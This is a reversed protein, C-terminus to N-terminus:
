QLVINKNGKIIQNANEPLLERSFIFKVNKLKVTVNVLKELDEIKINNQKLNVKEISDNMNLAQIIMDIFYPQFEMKQFSIYKLKKSVQIKKLILMPAMPGFNNDDIELHKINSENLYMLVQPAIEDTIGCSNLKIKELNEVKNLTVGIINSSLPDFKNGSIDLSKLKPNTNLFNSLIKFDNFYFNNFSLDLEKLTTNDHALINLFSDLGNQTLNNQSLHFVEISTNKKFADALYYGCPPILNNKNLILIKVTTNQKIYEFLEKINNDSLNNNSLNLYVLTKIYKICTLVSRNFIKSLKNNTITLQTLNVQYYNIAAMLRNVFAINIKTDDPLLKDFKIIQPYYYKLSHKLNDVAERQSCIPNELDIKVNRESVNKYNNYQEFFKEFSYVEIDEVLIKGNKLNHLSLEVLTRMEDITNKNYRLIRKQVQPLIDKSLFDSLSSNPFDFKKSYKTNFLQSLQSLTKPSKLKTMINKNILELCIENITDQDFDEFDVKSLKKALAGDEYIDDKNFLIKKSLYKDFSVFYIDELFENQLTNIPCNSASANIRSLKFSYHSYLSLNGIINGVLNQISIGTELLYLCYLYDNLVEKTFSFQDFSTSIKEKEVETNNEKNNNNNEESEKEKNNTNINNNETNKDTTNEEEDFISKQNKKSQEYSALKEESIKLKKILNDYSTKLNSMIENKKDIQSNLEENTKDKKNIEDKLISINNKLTQIQDELKNINKQNETKINNINDENKLNIDKIDNECKNKLKEIESECKSKLKEIENEFNNKDNIIKTEYEIKLAPIEKKYNENEKKIELYDKVKIVLKDYKGKIIKLEENEKTLKEENNKTKILEEELNKNTEKYKINEELNIKHEKKLGDLEQTLKDIKKFSEILDLDWMAFKKFNEIEKVKDNYKAEWQINDELLLKMQKEQESIKDNKEKIIKDKEEIIKKLRSIEKIKDQNKKDLENINNNNLIIIDNLNQIEVVAQEHKAMYLIQQKNLEVIENDKDNMLENFRNNEEFIFKVKVLKEEMEGNKKKLINNEDFLEQIRNQFSIVVTNSMKELVKNLNANEDFLQDLKEQYIKQIRELENQEEKSGSAESKIKKVERSFAKKRDPFFYFNRQKSESIKLDKTNYRGSYMSYYQLQKEYGQSMENAQKIFNLFKEKTIATNSSSVSSFGQKITKINKDLDKVEKLEPANDLKIKNKLTDSDLSKNNQNEEQKNKQKSLDNNNKNKIQNIRNELDSKGSEKEM